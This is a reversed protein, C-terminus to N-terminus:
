PRVKFSIEAVIVLNISQNYIIVIYRTIAKRGEQM